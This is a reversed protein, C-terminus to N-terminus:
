TRPAPRATLGESPYRTFYHVAEDPTCHLWADYQEPDLIVVMRKEDNPKHFRQMMPHGDANVTLMSFSILPLGNPGDARYEWIGAIAMPAGDARAIEWRVPKGTEYSPEYFSEAPILCYQRRKFANRFSPKAAVTETRANYTQRALKLDAWHPVMGFMGLVAARDGPLADARPLRVIPAMYGPYAEEKWPSDPPAVQFHRMLHEYRSPVYNACM